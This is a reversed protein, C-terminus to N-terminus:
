LTSRIQLHAAAVMERRHYRQLRFLRTDTTSDLQPCSPPCGDGMKIIQNIMTGFTDLCAAGVCLFIMIHSLFLFSLAASKSNSVHISKRPIDRKTEVTGEPLTEAQVRLPLAARWTGTADLMLM